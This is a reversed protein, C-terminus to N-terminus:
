SNSFLVDVWYHNGGYSSTPFGSGVQYVGNLTTETTEPATLPPSTVSRGAFYGHNVAYHGTTTTYSAVYTTGSTVTV